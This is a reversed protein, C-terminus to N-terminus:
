REGSNYNVKDEMWKDIIKKQFRWDSGIKFGPIKGSRVYKYITAPHVDLYQSVEKINMVAKNITQKTEM